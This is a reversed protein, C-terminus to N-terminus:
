LDIRKALEFDLKTLGGASHTTITLRVKNYQILIDPHHDMSEAIGAVYNVFAMAPVFKSFAYLRSIEKGTRKWEPVKKSLEFIENGTLLKPM